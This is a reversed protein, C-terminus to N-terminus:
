MFIAFYLFATIKASMNVKFVCFCMQPLLGITNGKLEWWKKKWNSKTMRLLRQCSYFPLLLPLVLFSLTTFYCYTHHHNCTHSPSQQSHCSASSIHYPTLWTTRYGAYRNCSGSTFFPSLPELLDTFFFNWGLAKKGLLLTTQSLPFFTTYLVEWQIVNVARHAFSTKNKFM